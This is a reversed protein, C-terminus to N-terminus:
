RLERGAGARRLEEDLLLKYIELHRIPQILNVDGIRQNLERVKGEWRTVTRAWAAAIRPREGEASGMWTALAQRTIEQMEARLVEVALLIEKRESIWGPVMENKKLISFAMQQEEPVFPNRQLNLPKGHGALNDFAGNRMAEEIRKAVLDDWYNEDQVPKRNSSDQEQEPLTKDGEQYQQARMRAQRLRHGEEDLPPLHPLREPKRSEQEM